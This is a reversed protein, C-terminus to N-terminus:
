PYLEWNVATWWKRVKRTFVANAAATENNKVSDDPLARIEKLRRDYEDVIDALEKFRSNYIPTVGRFSDMM